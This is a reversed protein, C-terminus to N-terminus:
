HELARNYIDLDVKTVVGSLIDYNINIYSIRRGPGVVFGLTQAAVVKALTSTRDKPTTAQAIYAM